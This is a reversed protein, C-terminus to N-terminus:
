SEIFNLTLQNLHIRPRASIDLRGEALRITFNETQIVSKGEITMFTKLAGELEEVTEVLRKRSHLQRAKRELQKPTM